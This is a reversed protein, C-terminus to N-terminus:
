LDGGGGDDNSYQVVRRREADFRKLRTNEVHSKARPNVRRTV